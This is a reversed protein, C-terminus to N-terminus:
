KTHLIFRQTNTNGKNRIYVTYDTNSSLGTFVNSDQWNTNDLSYEADSFNHLTISNKTIITGDLTFLNDKTTYIKAIGKKLLAEFKNM